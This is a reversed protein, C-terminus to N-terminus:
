NESPAANPSANLSRSCHEKITNIARIWMPQRSYSEKRFSLLVRDGSKKISAASCGGDDHRPGNLIVAALLCSSPAVCIQESQNHYENIDPGTHVNFIM